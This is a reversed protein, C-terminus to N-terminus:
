LCFNLVRKWFRQVALTWARSISPNLDTALYWSSAGPRKSSRFPSKQFPFFVFSLDSLFVPIMLNDPKPPFILSSAFTHYNQPIERIFSSQKPQYYWSVELFSRGLWSYMYIYWVDILLYWYLVRSTCGANKIPQNGFWWKNFYFWGFPVVM